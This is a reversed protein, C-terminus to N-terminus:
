KGRSNPVVWVVIELESLEGSAGFYDGCTIASVLRPRIQLIGDILSNCRGSYM